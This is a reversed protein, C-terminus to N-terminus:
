PQLGVGLWTEAFERLAAPDDTELIRRWALAATLGDYRGLIVAQGAAALEAEFRGAVEEQVRVLSAPPSREDYLLVVNGLELAHLLEDASLERRDRGVLVAAHPGSTPPTPPLTAEAGEVHRAGHDPQLEGPGAPAAAIQADDRASFLLLLGALGALVVVVAVAVRV